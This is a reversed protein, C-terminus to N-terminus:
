KTAVSNVLHKALMAIRAKGLFTKNGIQIRPFGRVDRLAAQLSELDGFHQVLKTAIGESVSPVCMLQRAFVSDAESARQRKSQPPPRLGGTSIGPPPCNQLKKMLHLVLCATEETDWTRFCCSSRLSANVMAGLLSEYMGLWRLDGEICFFVRHGTAFM